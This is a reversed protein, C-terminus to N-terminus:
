KGFDICTGIPKGSLAGALSSFHIIQSPIGIKAAEVLELYKQRMGGTVDIALSGSISGEIQRFNGRGIKAILVADKDKKPDSTYIGGVDCAEIIKGAGLKEALFPAIQDGSLISCGQVEDYAPVGYCVPVMGIRLMGSIARVDLSKLRGKEMIAQDSLQCSIAPIGKRHLFGAVICNLENQLKQTQAFAFLQADSAIGKDIGSQKVIPHGYSGAGHVLVYKLADKNIGSLQGAITELNGANVSPTNSEKQTIVSGGIKIILIEM